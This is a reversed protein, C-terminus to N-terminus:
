VASHTQIASTPALRSVTATVATDSCARLVTVIIPPAVVASTHAIGLETSASTFFVVFIDFHWDGTGCLTHMVAEALTRM